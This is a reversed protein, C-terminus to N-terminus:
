FTLVTKIEESATNAFGRAFDTYPMVETIVRDIATGWKERAKELDEISMRNHEKSANVSGWIVQNKLVMQQMLSGGTFSVTRDAAPIGTVVYIGNIGLADILEFELQAVGTADVIVDIQGRLDDIDTTKVEKGNIYTGGIEKLLSPRYSTEDVIDLGIVEAGRLRLAFAALIGIPGLGAVLARKGQYYTEYNQGPIRAAQIKASEDIAKMGVSYPETMVAIDKVGEPIKLLYVEKDVVYETMYGDYMRIGRETYNGTQCMDNRHELCPTCNGCSRRVTFLATDGLKVATVKGGIEVVTGLMEHGIVLEQSGAPADARGGSAIERDTGCIGVQTIKIKVQDWETIEPEPRDVIKLIKSGPITAIAKM